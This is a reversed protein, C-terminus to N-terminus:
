LGIEMNLNLQRKRLMILIYINAIQNKFLFITIHKILEHKLKEQWSQNIKYLYYQKITQNEM